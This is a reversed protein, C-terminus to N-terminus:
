PESTGRIAIRDYYRTVEIPLLMELGDLVSDIEQISATTYVSLDRIAADEIRIETSSYRNLEEIVKHLPERYFMLMGSRWEHYRD